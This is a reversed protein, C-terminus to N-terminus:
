WTIRTNIENYRGGSEVEFGRRELELKINSDISYDDLYLSTNNEKSEMHILKLIRNLEDSDVNVLRRMNNANIDKLDM